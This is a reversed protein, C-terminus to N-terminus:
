DRQGSPRRETASLIAPNSTVGRGVGALPAASDVVAAGKKERDNRLSRQLAAKTIAPECTAAQPMRLLIRRLTKGIAEM